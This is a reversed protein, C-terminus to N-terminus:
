EVEEEVPFEDQFRPAPDTVHNIYHATINGNTEDIEANMSIPIASFKEDGLFADTLSEETFNNWFEGAEERTEFVSVIDAFSSYDSVNLKTGNALTLVKM